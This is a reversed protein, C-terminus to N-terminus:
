PDLRLARDLKTDGIGLAMERASQGAANKLDLSAGRRRLLAAAAPQDAQVSKMLATEGQDNAADVPVGKALLAALEATRGAAAAARLREAEGSLVPAPAALAGPDMPKAVRNASVAADAPARREATVVLESIESSSKPPAPAPAPEAAAGAASLERPLAKEARDAVASSPAAPSALASPAEARSAPKPAPPPPPAQAPPAAVERETLAPAAPNAPRVPPRVSAPPYIQVGLFVSLGVVSAAALWGGRGWARWSKPPSPAAPAAESPQAVAALVRARRAARASDDGLLAEAEIYAKDMPDPATDHDSM